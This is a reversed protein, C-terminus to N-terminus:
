KVKAGPALDRDPSLLGLIGGAEGALVMGNSQIGMLTAPELNAVIVIRRGVLAEPEYHEAIGAVVTRTEEGVRLTLKLLKKSKAVREAAQVEAVRLDIKRFDDISIRPGGAEAAAPPAPAADKKVEVRPFMPPAKRVALATEPRRWTAATWVPAPAGIAGRIKAAAEPLFPDLVIGLVWLTQGLDALVGELRDKSAPEKALRWPQSEDIYRNAEGIFRWIAALARHFAFDEM